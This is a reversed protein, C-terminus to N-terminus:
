QFAIGIKGDGTSAGAALLDLGKVTAQTSGGASEVVIIGGPISFGRGSVTASTPLASLIAAPVTYTGLSAPAKCVFQGAGSYSDTNSDTTLPSIGVIYVNGDTAGGSWTITLPQTRQVTSISGRNTWNVVPPVTFNLEFPGVDSGGGGNDMTYNGPILFDATPTTAIIPIVFQAAYNGTSTKTIQKTGNPGTLNIVPGADLSVPKVPDVYFEGSTFQYVTCGQSIAVIPSLGGM